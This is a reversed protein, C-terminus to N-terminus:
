LNSYFMDHYALFIDIHTVKKFVLDIPCGINVDIFELDIENSLMETCRAM